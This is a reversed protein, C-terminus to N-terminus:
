TRNAAAKRQEEEEEQMWVDSRSAVGKTKPAVM